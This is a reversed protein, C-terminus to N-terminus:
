AAEQRLIESSPCRMKARMVTATIRAARKLTKALPSSKVTTGVPADGVPCDEVSVEEAGVAPALSDGAAVV